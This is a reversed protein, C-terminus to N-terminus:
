LIEADRYAPPLLPGLVGELVRCKGRRNQQALMDRCSQNHRLVPVHGAHDPRELTGPDGGNRRGGPPRGGADVADIEIIKQRVIERSILWPSRTEPACMTFKAVPPPSACQM